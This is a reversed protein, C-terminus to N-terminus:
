SPGSRLLRLGSSVRATFSWIQNEQLRTVAKRPRMACAKIDLLLCPQEHRTQFMRICAMALCSCILNNGTCHAVAIRVQQLRLMQQQADSLGEKGQQVQAELDSERLEAARLETALHQLQLGDQTQYHRKVVVM